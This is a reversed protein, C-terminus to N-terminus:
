STRWQHANWSASSQGLPGMTTPLRVEQLNRRVAAMAPYFFLGMVPLETAIRQAIEREAQERDSPQLTTWLRDFLGDLQASAYHGRNPGIWQNEPTPANSSNLRSDLLALSPAAGGLEFGTYAARAQRDAAAARTLVTVHVVVGVERWYEAIAAGAREWEQTTTIDVEFRRGQKVLVDDATERRWGAERFLERARATDHPYRAVDRALTAYRPDSPPVWTDSALSRDGTLAEAIAGRDLAHLLAQRVRPDVLDEPQAGVFQPALLAWSYGPLSYLSGDGGDRWRQRIAQVIGQVSRRPLLFDIAGSLVGAMAANDDPLFRVNITELASPGLFYEAFRSLHIAGGGWQDVRFPGLGVFQGRWYPHAVFQERRLDFSAELLHSPLITLDYGSIQDAFAYRSRWHMVVTHRDPSDIADILRAVRRSSVAVAPDNFVRWSFVIDDATLPEGDHWRVNDRLQWVTQMTGDDHITWTGTGLSPLERALRPIPKAQDDYAVLAQHVLDFLHQAADTRTTGIAPVLSQPEGEVAIVISSGDSALRQPEDTPAVTAPTQGCAAIAASATALALFRRRTLSPSIGRSVLRQPTQQWAGSAARNRSPGHETSVEDCM